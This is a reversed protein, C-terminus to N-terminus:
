RKQQLIKSDAFHDLLRQRALAADGQKVAELIGKHNEYQVRTEKPTMHKVQESYRHLAIWFVGLIKDLTTNGLSRYLIRHFQEDLEETSKGTDTHQKWQRIIGELDAIDSPSLRPIAEGIVASELWMRLHLVEVLMEPNLRLNYSLIETIADFNTERVYLGDGRRVEILGLSQLSKVAERVSSRSIGLEESLQSEPLLPSGPQLNHIIIYEKIYDRVAESIVPQRLSKPTTSTRMHSGPHALVLETANSKCNYGGM